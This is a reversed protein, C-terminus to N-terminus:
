EDAPRGARGANPQARGLLLDFKPHRLLSGEHRRRSGDGNVLEYLGTGMSELAALSAGGAAVDREFTFFAPLFAAIERACRENDMYVGGYPLRLCVRNRGDDRAYYFAYSNVGHGWFGVMFRGPLDRDAFSLVQGHDLPPDDRCAASCLLLGGDGLPVLTDEPPVGPLEFPIHFTETFVDRIKPLSM